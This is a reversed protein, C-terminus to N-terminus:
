YEHLEEGIYYLIPKDDFRFPMYVTKKPACRLSVKYVLTIYNYYILCERLTIGFHRALQKARSREYQNMLM